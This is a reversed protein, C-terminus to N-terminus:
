RTWHCWRRQQSFTTECIIAELFIGMWGGLAFGASEGFGVVGLATVQEADSELMTNYLLNAFVNIYVAGSAVGAAFALVCATPATPLVPYLISAFLVSTVLLLRILYLKVRELRFLMISSRSITNGLHFATGYTASFSMFGDFASSTPIMRAASPFVLQQFASAILLPMISSWFVRKIVSISSSRHRGAQAKEGDGLMPQQEEKAAAMESERGLAYPNGFTSKPLLLWFTALMAAVLWYVYVVTDRIQWSMQYTVLWPGLACLVGGLGTGAGWGALGPIRYERMLMFLSVNSATTCMAALVNAVVRAPPEVNPPQLATQIGISIWIVAFITHKIAHPIKTLYFPLILNALVSPLVQIAIVISPTFPIILYSASFIIFPLITNISGQVQNAQTPSFSYVPILVIIKGFLLFSIYVRLEYSSLSRDHHRITLEM